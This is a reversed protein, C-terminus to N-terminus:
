TPFARITVSFPVCCSYQAVAQLSFVPPHHSLAHWCLGQSPFLVMQVRQINLQRNFQELGTILFFPFIIHMIFLEYLLEQTIPKKNWDGM